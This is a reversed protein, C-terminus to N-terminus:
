RQKIVELMEEMLEEDKLRFKFEVRRSKKRNVQGTEHKILRSKSRGNATILEQLIKQEPYSPFEDSLIYRSVSYAREQSLELNYMYSGIDDTHGEIVIEAIHDRYEPALIIGMYKPIFEQLKEKFEDRIEDSDFEFLVNGSFRIAGTQQDVDIDLNSEAFATTIEEAIEARIGMLQEIETQYYALEAEQEKLKTLQSQRMFLNFVLFLLIVLIVTTLLDTFSPWFSDTEEFNTIRNRIM